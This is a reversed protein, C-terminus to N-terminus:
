DVYDLFKNIWDIYLPNDENLTEMYTDYNVEDNYVNFIIPVLLKSVKSSFVGRSIMNYIAPKESKLLQSNTKGIEYLLATLNIKKLENEKDDLVIKIQKSLLKKYKWTKNSKYDPNEILLKIKPSYLMLNESNTEMVEYNKDICEFFNNFKNIVDKQVKYIEDKKYITDILKIKMENSCDYLYIEVEFIEKNNEDSLKEVNGSLVYNLNSNQSKILKMYDTSYRKNAIKLKYGEYAVAVQYNLNTKYHLAENIFLPISVALNRSTENYDGISTFSLILLNPSVRKNKNLLWTPNNFGYYWLPVNTSFFRDHAQEEYFDDESNERDYKIKMNLFIEEYNMFTDAFEIWPFKSAFKCLELGKEFDESRKYYELINIATYAGHQEPNFYPLIESEFEEFLSNMGYMGSAISMVESDYESEKLALNLLEKGKEIDGNKFCKVAFTLKARWTDELHAFEQLKTNYEAINRKKIIDFYKKFANASNPNLNLAKLYLKEAEEFNGTKELVKAYNSYITESPKEYFTYKKYLDIAQDYEKNKIYYIGLINTKREKNNDLSYIRLCADKAEYYINKSFADLVITYLEETDDWNKEISPKLVQNIWEIKSMKQEKGFEDLYS